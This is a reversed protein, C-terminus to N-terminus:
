SSTENVKQGAFWYVTSGPVGTCAPGNKVERCKPNLRIIQHADSHSCYRSVARRTRWKTFAFGATHNTGKHWSEWLSGFKSTYEQQVNLQKNQILFLFFSFISLPHPTWRNARHLCVWWCSVEVHSCTPTHFYLLVVLTKVVVFFVSRM